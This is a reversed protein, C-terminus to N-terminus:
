KEPAKYFLEIDRQAWEQALQPIQAATAKPDVSMLRVVRGQPDFNKPSYQEFGWLLDYPELVFTNEAKEPRIDQIGKPANEDYLAQYSGVIFRTPNPVAIYALHEEDAPLLEALKLEALIVKEGKLDNVKITVTDNRRAPLWHVTQTPPLTTVLPEGTLSPSFIEIPEKAFGNVITLSVEDKGKLDEASKEFGTGALYQGHRPREIQSNHKTQSFIQEMGLANSVDRKVFEVVEEDGLGSPVPVVRYPYRGEESSKLIFDPGMLDYGFMVQGASFREEGPKIRGVIEPAPEASEGKKAYYSSLDAVALEQHDGLVYVAFGDNGIEEGEAEMSIEKFVSGDINKIVITHKPMVEYSYSETPQLPIIQAKEDTGKQVTLTKDTSNLILIDRPQTAACSALSVGTAFIALTKLLKM